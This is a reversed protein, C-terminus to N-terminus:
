VCKHACPESWGFRCTNICHLFLSWQDFYRAFFTHTAYASFSSFQFNFFSFLMISEVLISSIPLVIPDVCRFRKLWKAEIFYVFHIRQGNSYSINNSTCLTAYLENMWEAKNLISKFCFSNRTNLLTKCNWLLACQEYMWNPITRQIFPLRRPTYVTHFELM